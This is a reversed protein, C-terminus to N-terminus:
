WKSKLINGISQSLNKISFPKRLVISGAIRSKVDLDNLMDYGTAFIVPINEDLERIRKALEVGGMKPMVVDTIVLDIDKQMSSFLQCAQEGDSASFVKYGISTLM